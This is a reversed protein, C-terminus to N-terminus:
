NKIRPELLQFSDIMCSGGMRSHVADRGACLRADELQLYFDNYFDLAPCDRDFKARIRARNRLILDVQGTSSLIAGRIAGVRICKPGTRPVWVVRRLPPRPQVSVRLIVEDQAVMRTVSRHVPGPQAAFLGLLAPVLGALAAPIM